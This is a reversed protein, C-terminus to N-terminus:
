RPTCTFLLTFLHSLSAVVNNQGIIHLGIALLPLHTSFWLSRREVPGENIHLIVLTISPTFPRAPTLAGTERQTM